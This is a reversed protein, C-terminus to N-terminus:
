EGEATAALGATKQRMNDLGAQAQRDDLAIRLSIDETAAM